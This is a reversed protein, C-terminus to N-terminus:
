AVPAEKKAHGCLERILEDPDGARMLSEGILFGRYGLSNLWKLEEANSLGSESILTAGSPALPALRASTQLSVKLTQLDRNNVGILTSGAQAARQMETENHVEVLADLGLREEVLLRFASLERDDLAAAILLIADAGALAAQYIQAEDVVFDKCLIPLPTAARMERLDQMSGTFFDPETLVSIATALRYKRAIQKPVADARLVGASPSARKFEAIIHRQDDRDLALRLRHRPRTAMAEEAKSRLMNVDGRGIERRVSRRRHKLIEGLFNKRM